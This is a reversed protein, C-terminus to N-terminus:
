VGPNQKKPEGIKSFNKKQKRYRSINGYIGLWDLNTNNVSMDIPPLKYVGLLKDYDKNHLYELKTAYPLPKKSL